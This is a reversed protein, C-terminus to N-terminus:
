RLKLSLLGLIAFVASIIWFRIVIKSETWGSKEFHHHIPAMKFFRKGGTMKFYYVQIIVSLAEIVFLGGIIALLIEHKTVLGISGIAGGLALSGVDGMFIEAPQANYWLFGMIGGIFSACLVSLEGANPVYQIQLYNAYIVNGSLYAIALFCTFVMILPVSVLGDLGDTLNVANSSGVLVTPGFLLYFVGLQITFNKLFPFMLVTNPLTISLIYSAIFGVIGQWLLKYRASVGAHHKRTVKLYDDIFGLLGYSLTVFLTLLVYINTIDAFLVSAIVSFLLIIVGGMTPTGRKSNHTVDGLERIPQSYSRQAIINIIKKGFMISLALSFFFALASRSSIYHLINAIHSTHIYPLIYNYIM